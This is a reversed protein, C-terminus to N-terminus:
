RLWDGCHVVMMASLRLWGILMGDDNSTGNNSVVDWVLTAATM